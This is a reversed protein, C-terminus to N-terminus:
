TLTLVSTKMQIIFKAKITAPGDITQSTRSHLQLRDINIFSQCELYASIYTVASRLILQALHSIRLCEGEVEHKCNCAVLVNLLIFDLSPAQSKHEGSTM